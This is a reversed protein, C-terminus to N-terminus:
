IHQIIFYNLSKLKYNLQKKIFRDYNLEIHKKIDQILQPTTQIEM